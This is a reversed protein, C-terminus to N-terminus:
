QRAQFVMQVPRMLYMNGNSALVAQVPMLGTTAGAVANWTTAGDTTKYLNASGTQIIGVYITQTANGTTGTSKDFLVFSM